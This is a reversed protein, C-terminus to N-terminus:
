TKGSGCAASGAESGLFGGAAAGAPGWIGGIAGGAVGAVTGCNNPVNGPGPQCKGHVSRGGSRCPGTGGENPSGKYRRRERKCQSTGCVPGAIFLRLGGTSEDSSSASTEEGLPQVLLAPEIHAEEKGGEGGNQCAAYEYEGEEEEEQRAPTTPSSLKTDSDYVYTM